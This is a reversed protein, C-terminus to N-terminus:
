LDDVVDEKNYTSNRVFVIYDPDSEKAKDKNPMVVMRAYGGLQGALYSSGSKTKNKWVGGVRVLEGFSM